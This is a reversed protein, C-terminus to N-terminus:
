ASRKPAIGDGPEQQDRARWFLAAMDQLGVKMYVTGRLQEVRDPPLDLRSAIQQTTLGQMLYNLLEQEQATLVAAPDHGGQAPLAQPQSGAMREAQSIRKIMTPANAGLPESFKIGMITIGGWHDEWVVLGHVEEIIEAGTPGLMHMTLHVETGAGVAGLYYLGVGERSINTVYGRRTTGSAKVTLDVWATMPYRKKTRWEDV